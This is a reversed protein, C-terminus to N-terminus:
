FTDGALLEYERELAAPTIGFRQMLPSKFAEMAINSASFAERARDVRELMRKRGQPTMFANAYGRFFNHALYDRHARCVELGHFLENPILNTKELARLVTGFTNAHQADMFEDVSKAWADADSILERTPLLRLVTLTNVLEHELVQAMFLALGFRAFVEKEDDNQIPSM